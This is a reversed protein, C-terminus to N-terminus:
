KMQQYSKRRHSKSYLNRTQYLSMHRKEKMYQYVHQSFYASKSKQNKDKEIDKDKHEVQDMKLSIDQKKLDATLDKQEDKDQSKNSQNDSEEVVQLKTFNEGVTVGLGNVQSENDGHSFRSDKKQLGKRQIAGTESDEETMQIKHVQSSIGTENQKVGGFVAPGGTNQSM